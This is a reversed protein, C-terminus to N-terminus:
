LSKRQRAQNHAEIEELPSMLKEPESKPPLGNGSGGEARAGSPLEPKANKKQAYEELMSKVEIEAAKVCEDPTKFKGSSAYMGALDMISNVHKDSLDPNASKVGAKLKDVFSQGEVERRIKEAARQAAREESEALLSAMEKSSNEPDIAALETARKLRAQFDADGQQKLRQAELDRKRQEITALETEREALKRDKEKMQDELEKVRKAHDVVPQQNPEPTVKPENGEPKPDQNVAPKTETQEM